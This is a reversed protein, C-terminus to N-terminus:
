RRLGSLLDTRRRLLTVTTQNVVLETLEQPNSAESLLLGQIEATHDCSLQELSDVKESFDERFEEFETIRTSKASLQNELSAIKAQLEIITVENLDNKEELAQLRRIIEEINNSPPSVILSSRRSPKNCPPCM